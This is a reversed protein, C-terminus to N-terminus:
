GAVAAAILDVVTDLPIATSDIILHYLAPSRPDVCYLTQHYALRARDTRELRRAAADRDIGEIAMAQIVRAPAPGDLLVHLARPDSRLVM